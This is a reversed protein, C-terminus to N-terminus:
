ESILDIISKATALDVKKTLNKAVAIDVTINKLPQISLCFGKYVVSVTQFSIYVQASVGFVNRALIETSVLSNQNSM